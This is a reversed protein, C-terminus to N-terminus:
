RQKPLKLSDVPASATDNKATQNTTPVLITDGVLHNNEAQQHCATLGLFLMAASAWRLWTNQRPLVEVRGAEFLGCIRYENKAFVELIQAESMGRFDRVVKRCGDCYWDGNSPQLENLQKPCKFSLKINQLTEM